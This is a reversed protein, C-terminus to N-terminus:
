KRSIFRGAPLLPKAFNGLSTKSVFNLKLFDAVEGLRKVNDTVSFWNQTLRQM